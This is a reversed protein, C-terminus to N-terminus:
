DGGSMVYAQRVLKFTTELEAKKTVRLELNGTGYHGIKSVDKAFSPMEENYNMPLWVKLQSMQLEVCAINKAYKYAIYFRNPVRQVSENLGLLYEDLDRFMAVISEPKGDEHEDVTYTPRPETEVEEDTSTKRQPKDGSSKFVPSIELTNNEYKHYTWFELGDSIQKAAHLSYRDYGPALCIVRIHSWDVKLKIGAAQVALEFDGKHDKIWDLYFLGQTVLGPNPVKKYEIIVPYGEASIALTDIFGRHERGTSFESKVVICDFVAELNAEILNQLDKELAFDVVQVVKLRGKDNELLM